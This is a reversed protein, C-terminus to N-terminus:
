FAVGKVKERQHHTNLTDSESLADRDRGKKTDDCLRQTQYRTQTIQKTFRWFCPLTEM